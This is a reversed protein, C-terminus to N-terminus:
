SQMMRAIGLNLVMTLEITRVVGLVFGLLPDVNHTRVWCVVSGLLWIPPPVDVATQRRIARAESPYAAVFGRM